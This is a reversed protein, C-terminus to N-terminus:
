AEVAEWTYTAEGDAVELQLTYTGDDEPVAPLEAAAKVAAGINLAAIAAIIEDLDDTGRVNDASGGLSYYLAKLVGQLTNMDM